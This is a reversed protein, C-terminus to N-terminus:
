IDQANDEGNLPLEEKFWLITQQTNPTEFIMVSSIQGSLSTVIASPDSPSAPYFMVSFFIVLAAAVATAPIYFRKLFLLSSINTWGFVRRDRVRNLVSQELSEFNTRALKTKLDAKYHSSIIQHDQLTKQCSPCDKLHEDVKEKDEPGLERDFYHGLLIPDCEKLKCNEKM